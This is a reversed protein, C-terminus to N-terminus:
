FTNNSILWCFFYFLIINSQELTLSLSTYISSSWIPCLYVFLLILSKYVSMLFNNIIFPMTHVDLNFAWSPWNCLFGLFLQISGKLYGNYICLHLYNLNLPHHFCIYSGLMLWFFHSSVRKKIDSLTSKVAIFLGTVLFIKDCVVCNM